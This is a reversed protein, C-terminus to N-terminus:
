QNWFGKAKGKIIRYLQSRMIFTQLLYVISPIILIGETGWQKCSFNLLPLAIVAFSVYIITQSKTKGTGNIPYMYTNAAIQSFIYIATAIYVSTPSKVEEGIWLQYITPACIIMIIM